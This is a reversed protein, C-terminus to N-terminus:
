RVVLGSLGPQRPRWFKLRDTRSVRMQLNNAIFTVAALGGAHLATLVPAMLRRDIDAVAEFLTWQPNAHLLPTVETVVLVRQACGNVEAFTNPLV